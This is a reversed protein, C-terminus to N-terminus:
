AQVRQRRHPCVPPCLRALVGSRMFWALSGNPQEPDDILIATASAPRFTLATDSIKKTWESLLPEHGVIVLVDPHPLKSWETQIEPFDGNAIADMVQVKIKKGFAGRLLEATQLARKVPSSWIRIDRGNYLCHALGRAAQKVKKRGISTLEREFDPKADSRPEAKGHRMFVVEM